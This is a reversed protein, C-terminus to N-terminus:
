GREDSSMEMEVYAYVAAFDGGEPGYAAPDSPRSGVYQDDAGEASAVPAPRRFQSHQHHAERPHHKAAVPLLSVTPATSSVAM